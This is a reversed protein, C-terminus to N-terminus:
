NTWATWRVPESALGQTAFELMCPNQFCITTLTCKHIELWYRWWSKMCTVLICVMWLSIRWHQLRMLCGTPRKRNNSWKPVSYEGAQWTCNESPSRHPLSDWLVVVVLARHKNCMEKGPNDLLFRKLIHITTNQWTNLESEVAATQAAMQTVVSDFEAKSVCQQEATYFLLNSGCLTRAQLYVLALM